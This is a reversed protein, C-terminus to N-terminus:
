HKSRCVNQRHVMNAVGLHETEPTMSAEASPQANRHPDEPSSIAQGEGAAM